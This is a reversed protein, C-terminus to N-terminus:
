LSINYVKTWVKWIENNSFYIFKDYIIIIIPHHDKTRVPYNSFYIKSEIKGNKEFEDIYLKLKRIKIM